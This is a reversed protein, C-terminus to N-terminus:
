EAHGQLNSSPLEGNAYCFGRTEADQALFTLMGEQRRSQKSYSHRRSRHGMAEM